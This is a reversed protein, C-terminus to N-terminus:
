RTAADTGDASKTLLQEVVCAASRVFGPCITKFVGAEAAKQPGGPTGLDIGILDRCDLAGHQARFRAMFERALEHAADKTAKEKAAEASFSLGLAMLGGTVAGCVNGTRGLGGGFAQAVQIATDRPLGLSPGCSALVSQACNYGELFFAVAADDTASM